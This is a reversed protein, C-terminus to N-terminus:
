LNKKIQAVKESVKNVFDIREQKFDNSPYRDYEEFKIKTYKLSEQIFDWDEPTLELCTM